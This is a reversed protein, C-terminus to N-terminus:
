LKRVFSLFIGLPLIWLLQQLFYPILGTSLYYFTAYDTM